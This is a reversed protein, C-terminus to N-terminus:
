ILKFFNKSFFNNAFFAMSINKKWKSKPKKEHWRSFVTFQRFFNAAFIWEFNTWLNLFMSVFVCVFLLLCVSLCATLRVSFFLTLCLYCCVYSSLSLMTICIFVCVCVSLCVFFFLLKAKHWSIIYPLAPCPLALHFISKRRNFHSGWTAVAFTVVCKTSIKKM